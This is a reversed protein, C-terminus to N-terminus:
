MLALKRERSLKKIEVERKMAESRSLCEEVYVVKVPRRASTYKAGTKSTNHAVVRKEVDTTWGTYLTKDACELMYVFYKM